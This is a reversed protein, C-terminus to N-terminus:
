HSNKFKTLESYAQEQRPSQHLRCFHSQFAGKPHYSVRVRTVARWTILGPLRDTEELSDATHKKSFVAHPSLSCSNGASGSAESVGWDEGCLAKEDEQNRRRFSLM